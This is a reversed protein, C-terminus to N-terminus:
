DFSVEPVNETGNDAEFYEVEDFGFIGALLKGPFRKIKINYEKAVKNYDNRAVLLRNETGALEDQLSQYQTNAKLDPYAETVANVWISIAKNLEEQAQAQEGVSNASGVANRANTVATYTEKEYDSYGKVTNVFNPILDARRQLNTSISASATQVEEYKNVFGNYSSILSIVLVVVVVIAIIIISRKKNM